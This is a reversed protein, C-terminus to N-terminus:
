LGATIKELFYAHFKKTSLEPHFCAALYYGGNKEQECALIEGNDQALVRVNSNIKTIKPARIFVAHIAGLKTKIDKEFSESQRGYANRDVEIDMLELTRQSAEKNYIKQALMVTGACTGFLYKIRKLEEFIGERECLKGLVTSEGGPIILANIRELEGKTRVEIVNVDRGIEQAAKKIANVHESVDGQLALVGVKISHM